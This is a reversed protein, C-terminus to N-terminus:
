LEVKIEAWRDVKMEIVEANQLDEESIVIEANVGIVDEDENYIYEYDNSVYKDATCNWNVRKEKGNDCMVYIKPDESFRCFDTLEWFKM